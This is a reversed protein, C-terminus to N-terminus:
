IVPIETVEYHWFGNEVDKRNMKYAAGDKEYVKIDKGPYRALIEEASEAVTIFPGNAETPSKRFQECRFVWVTQFQKMYDHVAAESAFLGVQVGSSDDNCSPVTLLFMTTLKTM